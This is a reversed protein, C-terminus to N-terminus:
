TVNNSMHPSRANHDIGKNTVHQIRTAIQQKKALWLERKARAISSVNLAGGKELDSLTLRISNAFSQSFRSLRKASGKRIAQLGGPATRVRYDLTTKPIGLDKAIHAIFEGQAIRALILPMDLNHVM